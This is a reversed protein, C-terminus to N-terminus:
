LAIQFGGPSRGGTHKRRPRTACRVVAVRGVGACPALWAWSYPTDNSPTVIDTDEPRFGRAYHRFKGFGGIYGPFSSDQTQQFLTKYNFLPAYAYVYAEAAITRAEDPSALFTQLCQNM